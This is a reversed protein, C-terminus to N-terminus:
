FPCRGVKSKGSSSPEFTFGVEAMAEVHEALDMKPGAWERRRKPARLSPAPTVWWGEETKTVLYQRGRESGRIPIRGKEDAKVLSTM